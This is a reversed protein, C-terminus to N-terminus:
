RHLSVGAHGRVTDDISYLNPIDYGCTPSLSPSIITHEACYAIARRKAAVDVQRYVHLGKAMKYNLGTDFMDSLKTSANWVYLCRPIVLNPGGQIISTPPQQM